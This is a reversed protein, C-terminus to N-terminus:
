ADLTGLSAPPCALSPYGDPTLQWSYIVGDHYTASVADADIQMLLSQIAVSTLHGEAMSAAAQAPSFDLAAM